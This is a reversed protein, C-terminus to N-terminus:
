KALPIEFYVKTWKGEESEIWVRGGHAEVVRKLIYLGLGSLGKTENRLQEGARFLKKINEPSIGCGNDEVSFRYMNEVVGNEIKIEGGEKPVYRIANDIVNCLCSNYILPQDCLILVDELPINVLIDVGMEKSLKRYRFAIAKLIGNVSVPVPNCHVENLAGRPNIMEPLFKAVFNLETSIQQLTEIQEERSLNENILKQLLGMVGGKGFPRRLDHAWSSTHQLMQMENSFSGIVVEIVNGIKKIDELDKENYIGNTKSSFNAFGVLEGKSFLPLCVEANVYHLACIMKELFKIKEEIESNNKQAHIAKLNECEQVIFDRVIIKRHEKTYNVLPDDKAVFLMQSDTQDLGESAAIMYNGRDIDYLLINVSEMPLFKSFMEVSVSVCDKIASTQAVQNFAMGVLNERNLYQRFMPLHDIWRTLIPELKKFLVPVILLMLFLTWAPITWVQIASIVSLLIVGSVFLFLGYIGWYRGVLNFDILQHKIVAYILVANLVVLPTGIPLIPVNYMPLFATPGTSFGILSAYFLTKIVNKRSGSLARISQVYQYYSFLVSVFFVFIYILYIKGAKPFHSFIYVESVNKIFYKTPILALFIITIGFLIQLLRTYKKELFTFTFNLYALPICVAGYHLFQSWFLAMGENKDFFAHMGVGFSWWSLALLWGALAYCLKKNKLYFFGSIMVILTLASNFINAIGYIELLDM